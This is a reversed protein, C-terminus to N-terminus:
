LEYAVLVYGTLNISSSAVKAQVKYTYTGAAPVDMALPTVPIGDSSPVFYNYYSIATSDRVFRLKATGLGSMIGDGEVTSGQMLLIVPRGTTTLTISLNTVDVYSTSSTTFSGCASSVQQGVAVLKPRTVNLDLIKATTVSDAALKAATIGLNKVQVSNASVEITSNDVAWSAGILGTNDISLFRNGAPLAAPFTLSYSSALAVPSQLTIGNASVATDRIIIPGVDMIAAQNTDQAFTFKTSALTYFVSANSTAYDGGIGGISAANLAGGATLQIQNGATDNYYLDAGAVYCCGLDSAAGLPSGQASYRTSRLTIADNGNFALDANINIGSSPVPVGKGTTHDHSDVTTFATNNMTGYTPGPTTSVVPLDLGMYPTAM